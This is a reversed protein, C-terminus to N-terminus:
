NDPNPIATVGGDAGYGPITKPPNVRFWAAINAAADHPELGKVTLDDILEAFTPHLAAWAKQVAPAAAAVKEAISIWQAFTIAGLAASVGESAFLAQLATLAPAAALADELLPLLAIILGFM